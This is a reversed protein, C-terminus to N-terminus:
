RENTEGKIKDIESTNWGTRVNIQLTRTCEQIICGESELDATLTDYGDNCNIEIDFTKDEVSQLYDILEQVTM